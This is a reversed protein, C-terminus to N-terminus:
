LSNLYDLQPSFFPSLDKFAETVKEQTAADVRYLNFPGEHRETM